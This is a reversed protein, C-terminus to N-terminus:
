NGASKDVSHAVRTKERREIQVVRGDHITLEVSGYRIGNLAAAIQELIQKDTPQTATPALIKEPMTMVATAPM